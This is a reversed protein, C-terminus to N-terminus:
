TNWIRPRHVERGILKPRLLQWCAEFGRRCIEASDGLYRILLIEGRCSVSWRTELPWPGENLLTRLADLPAEQDFLSVFMTGSAVANNMGWPASLMEAGGEFHVRDIFLPKADRYIEIRQTLSGYSFREGRAKRGLCVIDWGILKADGQLNFCNNLEGRAGNFIITEQPLWELVAEKDVHAEVGQYQPLAHEAVRYLKGAAPTTILAQAGKQLNAAIALNDGAVMGGPPHLLYLHCTEGEPYFPRQIRLPGYHEVTKLVTRNTQKQLLLQLGAQWGSSLNELSAKVAVSSKLFRGKYM